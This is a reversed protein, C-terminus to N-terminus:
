STAAPRLTTDASQRKSGRPRQRLPSECLDTAYFTVDRRRRHRRASVHGGSWLHLRSRFTL